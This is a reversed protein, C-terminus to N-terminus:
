ARAEGTMMRALRKLAADRMRYVAAREYGLEDCLEDIDGAHRRICSREVIRRDQPELLGLLKEVDQVEREAAHYRAELYADEALSTIWADETRNGGGSVPESDTLKTKLTERKLRLTERREPITLLAFRAADYDALRQLVYQKYTIM